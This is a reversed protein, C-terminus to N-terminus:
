DSKIRPAVMYTLDLEGDGRSFKIKVPFEQGLLLAVADDDQIGKGIEELYNLSFLSEANGPDMDLVDETDHADYVDDTDGDAHAYYEPPEADPDVGLSLHDNVLDAADLGRLFQEGRLVVRATLDLEPIEPESRISDPDILGLTYELGEFSIHLKRTEEDLQLDILTEDDSAMGIIDDLQDLPIGLVGGDAAYHEFADADLELDVMAVNAPDVARVRLGSENTRLKFEDVVCGVSDVLWELKQAPVIAEFGSPSDADTSQAPQSDDTSTTEEDTDTDPQSESM